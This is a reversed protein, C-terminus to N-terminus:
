KADSNDSLSYEIETEDTVMELEATHEKVDQRLEPVHGACEENETMQGAGGAAALFEEQNLISEVPEHETVEQLSLDTEKTGIEMQQLAPVVELEKLNDPTLWSEDDAAQVQVTETADLDSVTQINLIDTVESEMVGPADIGTVGRQDTESNHGAAVAARVETETTVETVVVASAEVAVEAIIPEAATLHLGEDVIDHMHAIDAHLEPEIAASSIAESVTEDSHIKQHEIATIAVKENDRTIRHNADEEVLENETSANEVLAGSGDIVDNAVVETVEKVAGQEPTENGSENVLDASDAAPMQLDLEANIKDLDRIEALTPLEDLSALNFYDLFARTTAYIAPKGPVDRHGVVRVWDREQLTKIINSSVAVGRVHEIEGRTIPQRYAILVLTELLARSYRAPKEDWLRTIWQAYDKKAQFRYGSGVKKLEVGRDASENIIVQLMNEITDCAPPEDDNVFLSQIRNLSLPEGAAMIAAEIINKLQQESNSM